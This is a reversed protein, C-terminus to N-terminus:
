KTFNPMQCAIVYSREVYLKAFMMKKKNLIPYKTAIIVKNAKITYGQHTLLTCCRDKDIEVIRTHEFIQVHNNKLVKAIDNIYKKPHFMGQNKLSVNAYAKFPLSINEEYEVDLGLNKAVTYERLINDVSNKNSAYVNSNATVYHCDVNYNQIVRKINSFAEQNIQAYKRATDEDLHNLLHSYILGHQMTIKATTFGTAGNGIENAEFVAAKIGKEALLLATTLGTIGGGIIATDIQIDEKLEIPDPKKTTKLWLSLNEIHMKLGGYNIIELFFYFYM